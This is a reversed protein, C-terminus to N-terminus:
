RKLDKAVNRAQWLHRWEHAALIRFADWLNMRLLSSAPSSMKVRSLDRSAATKRLGFIERQVEEFNALLSAGDHQVATPPLFLKPSRQKRKVPPELQRVMWGGLFTQRFSRKPSVDARALADRMPTLYERNSKTVHAVCDAVSWRGMAPRRNLDEDPMSNVLGRYGAAASRLEEAISTLEPAATEPQPKM